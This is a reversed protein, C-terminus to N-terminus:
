EYKYNMQRADLSRDGTVPHTYYVSEIARREDENARKWPIPRSWDLHPTVPDGFKDETIMFLENGGYAPDALRTRIISDRVWYVFQRYQANTIETEDMWFSEFSVGRTDPEFGWLSDRDSPGMEFSGRKILVMGYPSPENYSAMRAGVLEGGDGSLMKGCATLLWAAVGMIAIKKIM